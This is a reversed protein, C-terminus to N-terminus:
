FSRKRLVIASSFFMKEEFVYYLKAFPLIIKLHLFLLGQFFNFLFLALERGGGKLLVQGQVM